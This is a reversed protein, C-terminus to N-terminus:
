PEQLWTLLCPSYYVPVDMHAQPRGQLHGGGARVRVASRGRSALGADRVWSRSLKIIQAPQVPAQDPQARSSQTPMAKTSPREPAQAKSPVSRSGSGYGPLGGSYVQRRGELPNQLVPASAAKPQPAPPTLPCSAPCPLPCPELSELPHTKVYEESASPSEPPHCRVGLPVTQAFASELAAAPGRKATRSGQGARLDSGWTQRDGQHTQM